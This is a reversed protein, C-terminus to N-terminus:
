RRRTSGAGRTGTASVRRAYRSSGDPRELLVGQVTSDRARVFTVRLGDTGFDPDTFATLVTPRSNGLAVSLGGAVVTFRADPEDTSVYSGVYPLLSQVSSERGKPRTTEHYSLIRWGTDTRKWVITML